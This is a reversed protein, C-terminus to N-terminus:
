GNTGSLTNLIYVVSFRSSVLCLSTCFSFHFLINLVWCSDCGGYKAIIDSTSELLFIFFDYGSQFLPSSSPTLWGFVVPRGTRLSCIEVFVITTTFVVLDPKLAASYCLMSTTCSPLFVALMVVLHLAMQHSGEQVYM